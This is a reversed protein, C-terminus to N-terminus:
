YRNLLSVLILLKVSKSKMFKCVVRQKFPLCNYDFENLVKELERNFCIKKINKFCNIYGNLKINNVEQIICIRANTILSNYIREKCQYYINNNNCIETIKKYLIVSKDFRDANYQKTLSFINLRYHYYCGDIVAVKEAYKYYMLNFVVDESIYKRESYFRINNDKIIKLSYLGTTVGSFCHNKGFKDSGIIAPLLKNRIDEKYFFEGSFIHKKLTINGEINRKFGSLVTDCENINIRDYLKEMMEVEIFDDSDIFAVYKGTAIELGSNRALGLGGNKKHIVKIRKDRKALEDCIQPCKDPSEDDVLIIEINKLTQNVISDVCIELYKEVNYVPVIISIDPQM